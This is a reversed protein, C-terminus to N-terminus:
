DGAVVALGAKKISIELKEENFEAFEGDIQIKIAASDPKYIILEKVQSYRLERLSHHRKFVVLLGFLLARIKSIKPVIIVDLLGDQLSAQPTLTIKNGMENSNSVFLLFPAVPTKVGSIEYSYNKYEFSQLSLFAAKLIVHYGPCKTGYM